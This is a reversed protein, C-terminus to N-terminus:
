GDTQARTVFAQAAVTVAAVAADDGCPARHRGRGVPNERSGRTGSWGCGEERHPM